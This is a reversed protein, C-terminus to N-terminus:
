WADFEQAQDGWFTLFICMEHARVQLSDINAKPMDLEQQLVSKSFASQSSGFHALSAAYHLLFFQTM